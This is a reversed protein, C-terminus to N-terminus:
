GGGTDSPSRGTWRKFARSFAEPHAFGTRRAVDRVSLDRQALLEIAVAQRVGELVSEFTTGEQRLRRYLTQRSMALMQGVHTINVGGTALLSRVAIGVRGRTTRQEELAALRADAHAALIRTVHAPAPTLMTQLNSDDLLLANHPGAFHIPVCFVDDYAPRHAPEPYTVYVARLVDRAAVRRVGRALRAFLSETIEPWSDPPRRDHLWVGTMDQELRFRDNVGLAPFDFGLRAYRNLLTMAGTITTAAQALPSALSVQECPVHNGFHLAFAPDCCVDAASRMVAILCDVPM